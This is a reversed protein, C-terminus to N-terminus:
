GSGASISKAGSATETTASPSVCPQIASNMSSSTSRWSACAIIRALPKAGRRKAEDEYAKTSQGNKLVHKIYTDFKYREDSNAPERSIANHNPEYSTIIGCYPGFPTNQFLRFYHCADYIEKRESQYYPGYSGGKEPGEDWDLGLWNMGDFIAQRAEETNRAEDTDEVRLVFVGGHKRAFLWNFLATRAGGVHLYGTPSPAFRTRVTM